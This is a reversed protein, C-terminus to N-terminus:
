HNKVNINGKNLKYFNDPYFAGHLRGAFSGPLGM